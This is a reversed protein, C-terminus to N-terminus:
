SLYYQSPDQVVHVKCVDLVAIISTVLVDSMPLFSFM